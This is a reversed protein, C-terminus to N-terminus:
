DEAGPKSRVHSSVLRLQLFGCECIQMQLSILVTKCNNGLSKTKQQLKWDLVYDTFFFNNCFVSKRVRYSVQSTKSNITEPMWKCKGVFENDSGMLQLKKKINCKNKCCSSFWCRKSTRPSLICTSIEEFDDVEKLSYKKRHFDFFFFVQRNRGGEWGDKNQRNRIKCVFM